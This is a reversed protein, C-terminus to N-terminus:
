RSLRSLMWVVLLVLLVPWMFAALTVLVAVVVVLVALIKLVGLLTMNRLLLKLLSPNRLEEEEERLDVGRLPRWTRSTERRVWTDNDIEGEARLRLLEEGSVPGIEEEGSDYFYRRAM